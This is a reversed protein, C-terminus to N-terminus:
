RLGLHGSLPPLERALLLELKKYWEMQAEQQFQSIGRSGDPCLVMVAVTTNSRKGKFVPGYGEEAIKRAFIACMYLSRVLHGLSVQVELEDEIYMERYGKAKHFSAQL